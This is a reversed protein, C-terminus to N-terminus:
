FHYTATALVYDRDALPRTVPNPSGLFKAYVLSLQLNSLRTFTVGATVRHDGQGTLSGLAGALPSTGTLDHTYTLPVDLDWGNFVNKYSLTWAIEMALANRSNALTTSGDLASISGAHVYTLEGILSQSNALFSPGISYIGSLNTQLVNARTSQPGTPTNVLVAAGQRYSVEGAVNVPGVQTSFSAGTLKINSFYTQQYQLTPFYTTVVSPNMDNYHLHYLGLETDGLVRFRAGIGWQNRASPKDDPGRPIIMGGPGIIFQAGPGTVDSYSWYTGPATLRNQQYSFQYYGLLSFNPTIQWQTSIQPVPLLIDKVEAGAMYSKTADAPGQAGAINPFFLSEGWAVVQDGVKVNLSTSGIKFTNYAYAALLTTHGGSWYRADSTFNNYQGSQNVTGPADNYNPRRYAQDYFTDARVFVGWDDHKLNVEGLLSVQNEILKNKAFNRDGDDGNINAPTLLNGSPARTRMGLGYSLTFTYDLTTDAGLEITSGAHAGPATCALLAAALTSLTATARKDTRRSIRQHM